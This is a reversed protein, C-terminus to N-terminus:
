YYQIHLLSVATLVVVIERRGRLLLLLLILLVDMNEILQLPFTDTPPNVNYHVYLSLASIARNDTDDNGCNM